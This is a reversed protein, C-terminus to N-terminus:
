RQIDLLVRLAAREESGASDRVAAVARNLIDAIMARTGSSGRGGQIVGYVGDRWGRREAPTSGQGAQVNPAITQQCTTRFRQATV